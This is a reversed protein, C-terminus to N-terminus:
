WGVRGHSCCAGVNGVSDHHVLAPGLFFRAPFVIGPGDDNPKAVDEDRYCVLTLYRGARGIGAM